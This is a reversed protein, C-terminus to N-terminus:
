IIPPKGPERTAVILTKVGDKMIKTAITGNKSIRLCFLKNWFAILPTNVEKTPNNSATVIRNESEVGHTGTEITRPNAAKIANLNFTFMNHTTRIPEMIPAIKKHLTSWEALFLPITM